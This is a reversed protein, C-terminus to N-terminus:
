LTAPWPRKRQNVWWVYDCLRSMLTETFGFGYVEAKTRKGIATVVNDANHILVANTKKGM